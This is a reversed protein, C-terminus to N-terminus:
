KILFEKCAKEQKIRNKQVSKETPTFLKEKNQILRRCRTIGEFSPLQYLDQIHIKKDEDIIDNYFEWIISNILMKDSNRTGEYKELCYLVKNKISKLM